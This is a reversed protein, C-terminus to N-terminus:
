ILGKLKNIIEDRKKVYKMYKYQNKSCWKRIMANCYSLEKNLKDIKHKKFM